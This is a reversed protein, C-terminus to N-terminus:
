AMPYKRACRASHYQTVIKSIEAPTRRRTSM